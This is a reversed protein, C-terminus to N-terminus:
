GVERMIEVARALDREAYIQTVDAKAHGLIVQAAELGYEKRIQTGASHRLQNPSWHEVGAKDCARKVARAYSNRDYRDGATRKPKRTRNTGPHNGCSLPTKRNAHQACRRKKESDAPSFCPAEKDRLLYPRLIDQAKPGILVIRERGHHAAKHKGPRYLWVAGSTDVDRPRLNYVDQPRCGTLRQFCVMDAVVCPLHPLTADVTADEVPTVPATEPAETRGKKLSPVTEIRQLVEVPVLEKFVGWRFIRKIKAVCQNIYGRSHGLDVMKQQLTEVGVPRFAAVETHGYTERLLRLTSKLREVYGTSEGDRRYYQKAWSLYAAILETVTIDTAGDHHCAPRGATLWECILRDYERKSVKTGHPGLYHDQGAITVVAQGSGKHKRYRPVSNSLKPM